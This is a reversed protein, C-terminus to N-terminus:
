FIYYSDQISVVVGSEIIFIKNCIIVDDVITFLLLYYIRHLHSINKCKDYQIPSCLDTNHTILYDHLRESNGGFSSAM